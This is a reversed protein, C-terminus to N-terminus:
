KERMKKVFNSVGNDLASMSRRFVGKFDEPQAVFLEISVWVNDKVTYVKSVKSRNNSEDAALVVLRREGESEIPWINALVVRFYEPDDEDVGIFYTRGERKFSVDGDSDIEPKYGEETLYETYLYQLDDKSMTQQSTNEAMVNMVHLPLAFCFFFMLTVKKLMLTNM